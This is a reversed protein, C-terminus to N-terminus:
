KCVNPFLSLDTHPLFLASVFEDLFANGVSLELYTMKRAIEEVAHRANHSMLCMYAGKLSSNGIFKYKEVPMDPLLGITMADHINLYNGFGGAILIEDIAEVPMDVMGLMVRIGAFIAGKSRILNKIDNESITIDEGVGSDNAWVLVFEPGEESDRIRSIELESSIKGTRDIIGAERLTAICDILGSGCVGIPKGHGITDCEVNYGPLIRLREIAGHMARMGYKIGGGEFAPGASCSCAILWDSNGLVMEGNTGIDIFLTLKESHAMGTVLAGSTIDGGVYSAINPLSHVFAMPNINLGLEAARVLPISNVTPIYPELRIYTPEIGLFLHSMTTNSAVVVSKILDKSIKYEKVLGDILENITRIVAQHLEALGNEEEVAHVIRTIVDDGYKAQKNYGGKSGIIEGTALDVLYVAVTTTGIDIALGYFKETANAPLIDAIETHGSSEALYVAARWEGQRLTSALKKLTQLGIHLNQIGTQRRLETYLRSLDDFAETLTPPELQVDVRWFLPHGTLEQEKLAAEQLLGRDGRNDTLVQHQSLRSDVPIEVTLDTLPNVQCALVWGQAIQEKTLKATQGVTVKGGKVIVACRGCSGGGGCASKVAIGAKEAARLVTETPEIQVEIEDPLFRINFNPM